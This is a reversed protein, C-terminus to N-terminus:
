HNLAQSITSKWYALKNVRTPSTGLLKAWAGGAAGGPHPFELHKVDCKVKHMAISADKGWIVVMSPNVISIEQELVQFFRKRDLMPLKARNYPRNPDCVWVKFIDTLYVRYGMQVLIDIMEYYYKTM